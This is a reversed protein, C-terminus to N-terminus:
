AIDRKLVDQKKNNVITTLESLVSQLNKYIQNEYYINSYISNHMSIQNRLRECRSRTKYYAKEAYLRFNREARLFDINNELTAMLDQNREIM